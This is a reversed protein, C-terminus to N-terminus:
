HSVASIRLNWVTPSTKHQTVHQHSHKNSSLLLLLLLASFRHNFTEQSLAQSTRPAAPRSETAAAPGSLWTATSKSSSTPATTLTSSQYATSSRPLAAPSPCRRRTSSTFRITSPSTTFPLFQAVQWYNHRFYYCVLFFKTCM